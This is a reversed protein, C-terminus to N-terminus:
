RRRGHLKEAPLKTELFDWLQGANVDAQGDPMLFAKQPTVYLYAADKGRWVGLVKEWPLDVAPEEKMNNVIHIEQGLTLTYAPREKKSLNLRVIQMRVQSWYTGFYVLPLALGIVLLVAGLMAAQQKQGALLFCVLSFALMIGMFMLPLRAFRKLRFTDFMSFNRFITANMKVRVTVTERM